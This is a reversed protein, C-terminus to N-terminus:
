DTDSLLSIKAEAPDMKKVTTKIRKIPEIKKSSQEIM